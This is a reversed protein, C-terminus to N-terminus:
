DLFTIRLFLKRCLEFLETDKAIYEFADESPCDSVCEELWWDIVELWWEILSKNNTTTLIIENMAKLLYIRAKINRYM